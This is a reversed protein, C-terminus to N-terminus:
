HSREKRDPAAFWSSPTQVRRPGHRWDPDSNYENREPGARPPAWGSLKGCCADREVLAMATQRCSEQFEM